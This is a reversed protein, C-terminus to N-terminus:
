ATGWSTMLRGIPRLVAMLSTGFLQQAAPECRSIWTLLQNMSDGRSDFGSTIISAADRRGALWLKRAILLPMLPMGWYCWDTIELSNRVAVARLARISYRRLHGAARDYASYVWQGAPVNILLSGDSALHFVAAQLFADEDEVHELVDFLFILEFRARLAPNRHSINYCSVPSHQSLNQKLAADNLDFGSVDRGYANEIQRQLLGHGCGFEAIERAGPILSGALHQFVEFRRRIWFHDINAIEFWRDGMSVPAPQSLYTIEPV